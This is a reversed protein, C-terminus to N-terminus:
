KVDSSTPGIHILKLFYVLFDSNVLVFDIIKIFFIRMLDMVVAGNSSPFGHPRQFWM